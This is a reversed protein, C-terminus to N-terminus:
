SCRVPAVSLHCYEGAQAQVWLSRGLAVALSHGVAVGLQESGLPLHVVALPAPGGGGTTALRKAYGRAGPSKELPAIPLLCTWRTQCGTHQGVGM